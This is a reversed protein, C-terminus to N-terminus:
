LKSPQVIFSSSGSSSNNPTIMQEAFNCNEVIAAVCKVAFDDDITHGCGPILVVKRCTPFGIARATDVGSEVPILKDDMGHIVVTPIKIKKLSEKRGSGQWAISDMQRAMSNKRSEVTDHLTHAHHRREAEELLSLGDNWTAVESKEKGLQFKLTEMEYRITGKIDTSAPRSMPHSIYLYFLTSLPYDPLGLISFEGTNSMVSALSMFRDPHNIVCTQALMGGMSGGMIHAKKVRMANMLLIIDEAVDNLTYAPKFSYLKPLNKGGAIKFGLFSAIIVTAIKKAAPLHFNRFCILLIAITSAPLALGALAAFGLTTMMSRTHLHEMKTSGGADRNSFSIVFFRKKALQEYITKEPVSEKNAGFGSVVLIPPDAPNGYTKVHLDIPNKGQRIRVLTNTPYSKPLNSM